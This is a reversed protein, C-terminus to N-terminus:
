HQRCPPLYFLVGPQVMTLLFCTYQSIECHALCPLFITSLFGFLKFPADIRAQLAGPRDLRSCVDRLARMGETETSSSDGGFYTARFKVARQATADRLAKGSGAAAKAAAAVAAARAAAAEEAKKEKEKDKEKNSGQMTTGDGHASDILVTVSFSKINAKPIDELKKWMLKRKIWRRKKVREALLDEICFCFEQM